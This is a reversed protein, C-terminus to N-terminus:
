NCLNQMIIGTSEVTNAATTHQETIRIINTAKVNNNHKDLCKAMGHISMIM